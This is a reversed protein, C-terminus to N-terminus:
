TLGLKEKLSAAIEDIEKALRTKMDHQAADALTEVAASVEAIILDAIHRKNDKTLRGIEKIAEHAERTAKKAEATADLLKDLVEAPPLPPM